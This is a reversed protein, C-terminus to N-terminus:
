NWRECLLACMARQQLVRLICEQLIQDWYLIVLGIAFEVKLLEIQSADFEVLVHLDDGGYRL